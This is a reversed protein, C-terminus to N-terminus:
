HAEKSHSQSEDKYWKMCEELFADEKSRRERSEIQVHDERSVLISVPKKIGLDLLEDQESSAPQDDAGCEDEGEYEDNLEKIKRNWVRPQYNEMTVINVYGWLLCRLFHKSFVINRRIIERMLLQDPRLLFTCAKGTDHVAREGWYEMKIKGVENGPVGFMPLGEEDAPPKYKTAVWMKLMDHKTLLSGRKLARWLPLLGRQALITKRLGHYRNTAAPDNFRLDLKVVFCMMFYLDLDTMLKKTHM